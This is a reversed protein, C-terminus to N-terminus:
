QYNFHRVCQQYKLIHLPFLLIIIPEQNNIDTTHTIYHVHSFYGYILDVKLNQIFIKVVPKSTYIKHTCVCM